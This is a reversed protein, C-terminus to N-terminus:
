DRAVCAALLEGLSSRSFGLAAAIAKRQQAENLVGASLTMFKQTIDEDSFPDRYDGKPYAFERVLSRGDQLEITVRTPRDPPFRADMAKDHVCEVKAMMAQVEPADWRKAMLQGIEYTGDVLSVAVAYPLSHDATEREDIEYRSTGGMGHVMDEMLWEFADVQVRRVHAPDIAFEKVLSLTADISSHIIYAAPYRKLCTIPLRWRDFPATLVSWDCPGFVQRSLGRKGEFVERPGTMGAQALYAAEIGRSAALGASAGKLMSMQGVRVEGITPYCGAIALAQALQAEDLHLLAGAAAASAITVLTTQDWGLTKFFSSSTFECCRMQVEFAILISKIVDMPASNEAEAVALCTGINDSSHAPNVSFYTDSMDLDRVMMCNVMAAGLVSSKAGSGLITCAPSGAIKSAWRRGAQVAPSRHAGLACALSDLLLREVAHVVEPAPAPGAMAGHIHHALQETISKAQM